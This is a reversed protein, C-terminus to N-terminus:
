RVVYHTWLLLASDYMLSVTYSPTTLRRNLEGVSIQAQAAVAISFPSIPQLPPVFNQTIAHSGPHLSDALHRCSSDPAHQSPAPLYRQVLEPKTPGRIMSNPDQEADYEDEHSTTSGVPEDDEYGEPEFDGDFPNQPFEQHTLVNQPPVLGLAEWAEPGGFFSPTHLPPPNSVHTSVPQMQDASPPQGNHTHPFSSVASSSPRISQLQSPQHVPAQPHLTQAFPPPAPPIFPAPQFPTLPKHISTDVSPAPV